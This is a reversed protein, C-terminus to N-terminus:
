VKLKSKLQIFYGLKYFNFIFLNVEGNKLMHRIFPKFLAYFFNILFIVKFTRCRSHFRLITFFSLIEKESQFLKSIYVLNKLGTETKLLYEENNELDGNMVPNDIHDISVKNKWLLYGYLTDEHGYGTINEDFKFENILKKHILFNNTM